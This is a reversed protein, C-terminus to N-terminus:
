ELVPSFLNNTKACHSVSLQKFPNIDEINEPIVWTSVDPVWKTGLKKADDKQIFPVNLKIPM